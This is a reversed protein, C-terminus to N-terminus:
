SRRQILFHFALRSLDLISLFVFHNRPTFDFSSRHISRPISVTVEVPVPCGSAAGPLVFLSWGSSVGPGGVAWPGCTSHIRKERGEVKKEICRAVVSAKDRELYESELLMLCSVGSRRKM